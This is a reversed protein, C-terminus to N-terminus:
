LGGRVTFRSGDKCVVFLLDRSGAMYTRVGSEPCYMAAARNYKEADEMFSSTSSCASVLSLILISILIKM